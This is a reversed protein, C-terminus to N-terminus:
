EVTEDEVEVAETDMEETAVTDAVMTTDAAVEEVMEVDNVEETVEKKTSTNCAAFVFFALSLFALKLFNKRM